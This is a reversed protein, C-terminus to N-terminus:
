AEMKDIDDLATFIEEFTFGLDTMEECTIEDEFVYLIERARELRESKSLGELTFYDNKEDEEAVRSDRIGLAELAEHDTMGHEQCVEFAANMSDDGIIIMNEHIDDSIKEGDVSIETLSEMDRLTVRNHTKDVMSVFAAKLQAEKVKKRLRAQDVVVAVVLASLALAGLGLLVREIM